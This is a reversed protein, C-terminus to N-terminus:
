FTAKRWSLMKLILCNLHLGNSFSLVYLFVARQQRVKCPAAQLHVLLVLHFVASRMPLRQMAVLRHLPVLGFENHSFKGKGSAIESIGACRM